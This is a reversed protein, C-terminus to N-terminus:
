NKDAIYGGSGRGKWCNIKEEKEEYLLTCCASMRVCVCVCVSACVFYVHLCVQVVTVTLEKRGLMGLQISLFFFLFFISFFHLLFSPSLLPLVPPLSFQSKESTRRRLLVAIVIIVFTTRKTKHTRTLTEKKLEFLRILLQRIKTWCSEVFGWGVFFSRSYIHFVITKIAPFTTICYSICFSPAPM